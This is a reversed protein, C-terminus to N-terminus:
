GADQPTPAELFPTLIAVLLDTRMFSTFHNTGPLIALQSAPMDGQVEAEGGGLLGYMEVAHDLRVFDADGVVILTPAALAAVEPTWDYGTSMFQGMKTVLVPWDEPRPAANVYAKPKPM